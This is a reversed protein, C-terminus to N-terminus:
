TWSVARVGAETTAAEVLALKERYAVARGKLAPLRPDTPLAGLASWPSSFDAECGSVFAAELEGRKSAKLAPPIEAEPKGEEWAPLRDVEPRSIGGAAEGRRM